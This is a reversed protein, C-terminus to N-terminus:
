NNIERGRVLVSEINFGSIALEIYSSLVSAIALYQLIEFLTSRVSHPYLKYVLDNSFFQILLNPKSLIFFESKGIQSSISDLIFSIISLIILRMFYKLGIFKMAFQSYQM